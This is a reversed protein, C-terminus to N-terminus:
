FFLVTQLLLLAAEIYLAPTFSKNQHATMSDDLCRVDGFVRHFIANALRWTTPAEFLM